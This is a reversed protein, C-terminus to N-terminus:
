AILASVMLAGAALSAICRVSNWMVWTKLYDAWLAASDAQVAALSDNLPVNFMMTVGICGIIYVASAALIKVAALDPLSCLNILALAACILGTGLFLAMFLPNIVTVNISNMAAIGQSAPLRELGRMIFNSFAFFMGAVLLAGLASTWLLLTQFRDM